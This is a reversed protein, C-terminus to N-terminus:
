VLFFLRKFYQCIQLQDKRLIPPMWSQRLIFYLLSLLPYDSHLLAFHVRKVVPIANQEIRESLSLNQLLQRSLAMYGLKQVNKVRSDVIRRDTEDQLKQGFTKLLHLDLSRTGVNEFFQLLFALLSM